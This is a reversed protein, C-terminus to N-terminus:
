GMNGTITKNTENSKEFLRDALGGVRDNFIGAFESDTPEGNNIRFAYEPIIEGSNVLLLLFGEVVRKNIGKPMKAMLETHSLGNPHNKLIKLIFDDIDEKDFNYKFEDDKKHAM